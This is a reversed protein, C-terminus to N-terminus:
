HPRGRAADDRWVRCMQERVNRLAPDEKKPVKERREVAEKREAIVRIEYEAPIRLLLTCRTNLTSERFLAIWSELMRSTVHQNQIQELGHMFAQLTPSTVATRSFGHKYIREIFRVLAPGELMQLLM